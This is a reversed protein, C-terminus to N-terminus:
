ENKKRWYQELNYKRKHIVKCSPCYMSKIIKCEYMQGCM